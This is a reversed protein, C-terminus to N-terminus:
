RKEMQRIDWDGLTIADGEKEISSKAVYGDTRDMYIVCLRDDDSAFAFNISEGGKQELADWLFRFLSEQQMGLPVKVTEKGDITAIEMVDGRNARCNAEAQLLASRLSAPVHSQSSLHAEAENLARVFKDEIDGQTAPERKIGDDNWDTM